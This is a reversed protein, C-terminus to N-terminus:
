GPTWSRRSSSWVGADLPHELLEVTLGARKAHNVGHRLTANRKGSLSFSGVPVLAMEGIKFLTFGTDHYIHLHEESVEYFVPDLDYRDALDRFDLIAAALADEPGMPDGLAVLRNRIRAAQILARGGAVQALHKDGMFALHAFSGGGHTELWERLDLLSAQDPLTLDPRPARFFGWAIWAVPVLVVVPLSRLYRAGHLQPEAQLWLGGVALDEGHVWAGLLGYGAVSAGLALLWLLSRTGFLPYSLRYFADRRIWLLGAVGLLVLAAELNVGKLLSLGAGTLLLPMAVQYAGNVQQGIGRSLAILLVGIGVTLLHSLELAHLPLFQLMLEIREEVAPLAASVLLVVGTAFTLLGLLRVGLGALLEIPLRLLGILPNNQWRRALRVLALGDGQALLATGLYVGILWPVLYYVLRFLLLGAVATEAPAGAASLMVLLSGDFVGLGGPILSLVGLTAAFGFAALFVAPPIQSGAAAVCCWAVAVALLWDLLSICVLILGGAWGLRVENGLVRRLISRSGALVLFVPLYAAYAILVANLAWGPLAAPVMGGQGGALALLVLVSLGVPVALMIIGAYLSATRAAVGDRTLLLIRVGSGALGSLGILNNTTNAVWSYRVLRPLPLTVRLRRGVWWDYLVMELVAVLALAQIALLSPVPVQRVSERLAAVDFGELEVWAVALTLLALLPPVARRLWHLLSVAGPNADHGRPAKAAPDENPRSQAPHTTM